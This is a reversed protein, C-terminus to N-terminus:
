VPEGVRLEDSMSLTADRKEPKESHDTSNKIVLRFSSFQYLLSDKSTLSSYQTLTPSKTNKVIDTLLSLM